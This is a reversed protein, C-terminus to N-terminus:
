TLEFQASGFDIGDLWKAATKQGHTVAAKEFV